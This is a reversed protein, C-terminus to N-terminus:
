VKPLNPFSQHKYSNTSQIKTEGNSYFLLQVFLLTPSDLLHYQKAKQITEKNTTQLFYQYKKSSQM